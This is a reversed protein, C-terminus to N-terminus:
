KLDKVVKCLARNATDITKVCKSWAVKRESSSCPYSEFTLAEVYAIKQEDLKKKGVVGKVNSSRREEVTFLEKVLKSSFNERSCSNARIHSIKSPDLFGSSTSTDQAEMIPLPSSTRFSPPTLKSSRSPPPPPPTLKLSHVEDDAEKQFSSVPSSVRSNFLPPILVFLDQVYGQLVNLQSTVAQEFKVQREILSKCMTKMETIEAALEKLRSKEQM